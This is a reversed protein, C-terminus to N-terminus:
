AGQAARFRALESLRLGNYRGLLIMLVVATLPLALPLRTAVVVMPPAAVLLQIILAVALTTATMRVAKKPGDAEWANWWREVILATVVVPFASALVPQNFRLAMAGLASVVIAILTGLFAVRSLNLLKLFPAAAMGILIATTSIVPGAIPGSQLYSLALLMPTFLGFTKWGLVSRVFVVVVAGAPMMLLLHMPPLNWPRSPDGFVAIISSTVINDSRDFLTWVIAGFTAVVAAILAHFTRLLVKDGPLHLDDSRM